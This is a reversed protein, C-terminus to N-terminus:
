FLAVSPLVNWQLSMLATFDQTKDIASPSSPSQNEYKGGILGIKLDGMKYLVGGLYFQAVQESKEADSKIYSAIVSFKESLDYGLMVTTRHIKDRGRELALSYDPSIYGGPALTASNSEVALSSKLRAILFVPGYALALRGEVFDERFNGICFYDQCNYASYDEQNEYFYQGASVGLFSIPFLQFQYGWGSYDRSVVGDIEARMYGYVPNKKDGADGYLVVGYGINADLSAGLPYSRYYAAVGADVQAFAPPTYLALLFLAIFQIM